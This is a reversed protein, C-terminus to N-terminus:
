TYIIVLRVAWNSLSTLGIPNSIIGSTGVSGVYAGNIDVRNNISFTVETIVNTRFKIMIGSDVLGGGDNVEQPQATIIDGVNYSNNATICELFATVSIISTGDSIGTAVNYGSDMSPSNLIVITTKINSTPLRSTLYEKTVVAKGTPEATILENTISPLTAVGNMKVIFADSRTLVNYNTEEGNEVTGNGVVFLSKTLYTNFDDIGSIIINSAQGVVTTNMSTVDHGIGTLFNTYGSDKLRFGTNFSGKGVNNVMYGFSTSLYNGAIVDIGMTFASSGTAGNVSSIGNSYSFDIADEGINGFFAPNRERIIYGQGNGENISQFPPTLITPKNLIQTIGSIANWDSNVQAAPITPKNLIQSVGGVSNWDSNLQLSVGVKFFNYIKNSYTIGFTIINAPYTFHSNMLGGTEAGIVERWEWRTKEEVCYVILGQEYTYALNNNTGLNKLTNENLSWEKVNLPIQTQVRLGLSRNTSDM